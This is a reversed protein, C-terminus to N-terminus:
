SRPLGHLASEGDDFTLQAAQPASRHEDDHRQEQRDRLQDDQSM